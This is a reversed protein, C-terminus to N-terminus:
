LPPQTPAHGAYMQDRQAAVKPIKVIRFGGPGGWMGQAGGRLHAWQPPSHVGQLNEPRRISGM